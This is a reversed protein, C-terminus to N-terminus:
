YLGNKHYRVILNLARMYPMRTIEIGIPETYSRSLM